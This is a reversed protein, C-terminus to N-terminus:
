RELNLSDPSSYSTFSISEGEDKEQPVVTLVSDARERAERQEKLSMNTHTRTIADVVGYAGSATSQKRNWVKDPIISM